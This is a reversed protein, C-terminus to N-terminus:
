RCGLVEVCRRCLWRTVASDDSVWQRRALHGGRWWCSVTARLVATHVVLPLWSLCVAARARCPQRPAGPAARSAERGAPTERCGRAGRPSASPFVHRWCAGARSLWAGPSQGSPGPCSRRWRGPRASVEPSSRGRHQGCAGVGLGSTGGVTLSCRGLLAGAAGHRRSGGVASVDGSAATPPLEWPSRGPAGAAGTVLWWWAWEVVDGSVAGPATGQAGLVGRGRRAAAEVQVSPLVCPGGPAM